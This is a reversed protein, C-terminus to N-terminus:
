ATGPVVACATGHSQVVAHLIGYRVGGLHTNGVCGFIICAYCAAIRCESEESRLYIGIGIGIVVESAADVGLGVGIEFGRGEMITVANGGSVVEEVTKLCDVVVADGFCTDEYCSGFLFLCLRINAECHHFCVIIYDIVFAERLHILLLNLSGFFCM